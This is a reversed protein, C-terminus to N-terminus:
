PKKKLVQLLLWVEGSQRVVYQAMRRRTERVRTEFVVDWCGETSEVVM